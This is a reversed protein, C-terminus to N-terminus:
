RADAGVRGRVNGLAGRSRPLCSVVICRESKISRERINMAAQREVSGIGASAGCVGARGSGVGEVVVPEIARGKGMVSGAPSWVVMSVRLERRAEIGTGGGEPMSAGTTAHRIASMASARPPEVTRADSPPSTSVTSGRVSRSARRVLLRSPTHLTSHTWSPWHIRFSWRYPTTLRSTRQGRDPDPADPPERQGDARRRCSRRDRDTRPSGLELMADISVPKAIHRDFGAELAATRGEERGHGTVAILRVGDALHERVRRAVEYGSIDPLGIDVFAVAPQTAIITEVGTIGDEALHVDHGEAALAAGLMTRADPNDEIVVIIVGDTDHAEPEGGQPELLAGALKLRIVFTAGRGVGESHATISGHHLEIIRRTIALGVGLGGSSRAIGPDVQYLLDFVHPLRDPAIGIGEDAVRLEVVQDEVRLGLHVAGRASSVRLANSLLNYVCQLLRDADGIVPAPVGDDLVVLRVQEEAFRSAHAEAADRVLSRLDLPALRLDYKDNRLRSVELLDDVLRSLYGLQREVSERTRSCAEASLTEQVLLRVGMSVAHLPNRLEHAVMGIFQEQLRETAALAERAKVADTIDRLVSRTRVVNGDGDRIGTAHLEVHVPAGDRTRLTLEATVPDGVAVTVHGLQVAVEAVGQQRARGHIPEQVM